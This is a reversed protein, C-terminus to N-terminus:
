RGPVWIVRFGLEASIQEFQLQQANTFAGMGGFSPRSKFSGGIYDKETPDSGPASGALWERVNGLVDYLGYTNAPKSGVKAATASQYVAMTLATGAAFKAWQEATPLMYKGVPGPPSKDIGTLKECFNTAQKWSVNEVPFDDGVPPGSPNDGMVTKYEKQTVESKGVFADQGPGLLNRVKVLRMGIGNRKDGALASTLVTFLGAQINNTVADIKVGGDYLDYIHPGPPEYSAALPTAAGQVEDTV